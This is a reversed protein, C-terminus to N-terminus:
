ATTSASTCECVLDGNRNTIYKSLHLSSTVKQGNSGQLSATLTSGELQQNQATQSYGTGCTFAGDVNKFCKDLDLTTDKWTGAITLCQTSLTNGSLTAPRCTGSYNDTTFTQAQLNSNSRLQSKIATASNLCAFACLVLFLITIRM